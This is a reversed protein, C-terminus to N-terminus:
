LRVSTELSVTESDAELLRRVESMGIGSASALEEVTPTRGLESGLDRRLRNVKDVKEVTHVPVRIMRASDAIGRLISQRIWWTAYTSFKNGSTYDFKEVARVLGLNGEQLLDM